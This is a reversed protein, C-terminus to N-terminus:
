QCKDCKKKYRTEDRHLGPWYYRTTLIKFTTRTAVFHGGYPEDYCAKLVDYIGYDRLCRHMVQDPGTYFMFRVIWSYNFSKEALLKREQTSFYGLMKGITLYNVIDAYWPNQTVLLFLNEDLFSDDITTPDDPVHLWSLFEAVVNVKGPKDVITIDFEQM